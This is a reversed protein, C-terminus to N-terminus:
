KFSAWLPDSVAWPGGSFFAFLLFRNTFHEKYWKVGLVINPM